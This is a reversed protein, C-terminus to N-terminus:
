SPTTSAAARRHVHMLYQPAIPDRSATRWPPWTRGGGRGDGAPVERPLVPRAATSCRCCSRAPGAQRRGVVPAEVPLRLGVLSPDVDIQVVRAQGPAPLHKTYPFSTGVMLLTDCEEMLEESPQTGLLGLGGTTLPHDDPVVAKGPLTKVIPAGLASPWPSCRTAPTCRVRASSCPSRRGPTSCRPRAPGPRERRRCRRAAARGPQTTPPSAPRSTGTRTRTRRRRGPHRQPVDPPGRRTAGARQPDRHRGRGADAAPEHGDPQVRGRGAYLRDLHVEQQYRTGLM